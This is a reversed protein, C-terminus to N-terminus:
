KPKQKKVAKYKNAAEEIEAKLQTNKRRRAVEAAAIGYETSEKLDRNIEEFKGELSHTSYSNKDTEAPQQGFSFAMGSGAMTQVQPLKNIASFLKNMSANYLVSEHKALAKERARLNKAMAEERKLRELELKRTEEEYVALQLQKDTAQLEVIVHQTDARNNNDDSNVTTASTSNRVEQELKKQLGDRYERLATLNNKPYVMALLKNLGAQDISM